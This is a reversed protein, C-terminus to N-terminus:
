GDAREVKRGEELICALTEIVMRVSSILMETVSGLINVREWKRSVGLQLQRWDVSTATKSTGPVFVDPLSEFLSFSSKNLRRQSKLM